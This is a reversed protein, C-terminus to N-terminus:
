KIKHLIKSWFSVCRAPMLRMVGAVVRELFSPGEAFGGEGLYYIPMEKGGWRSKFFHHTSEKLSSGFDVESVGIECAREIAFAYLANNVGFRGFKRSSANGWIHMLGNWVFVFLGGVVRGEYKALYLEVERDFLGVLVEFASYPLPVRRLRLMTGVYLRYYERLHRGDPDFRYVQIGERVARNVMNRHKQHVTRKLIDEYNRGKTKLRFTCFPSKKAGKIKKLSFIEVKSPIKMERTPGCYDALPLSTGRFVPLGPVSEDKGRMVKSLFERWESRHFITKYSM